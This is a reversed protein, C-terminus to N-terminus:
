YLYTCAILGLVVQTNRTSLTQGVKSFVKVVPCFKSVHVRTRTCARVCACVCVCVCVCVCLSLHPHPLSPPFLSIVSDKLFCPVSRPVDLRQSVEDYDLPNGYVHRITLNRLRNRFKVRKVVDETASTNFLTVESGPPLAAPGHDMERLLEGM